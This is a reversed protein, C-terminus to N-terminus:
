NISQYFLIFYNFSHILFLLYIFRRKCCVRYYQGILVCGNPSVFEPLQISFALINQCLIVIGVAVRASETQDKIELSVCCPANYYTNRNQSMQALEHSKPM